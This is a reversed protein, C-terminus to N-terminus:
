TGSPALRVEVTLRRVEQSVREAVASLATLVTVDSILGDRWAANGLALDASVQEAAGLEGALRVAGLNIAAGKLANARLSIAQVDDLRVAHRSDNVWQEVSRRLEELLQQWVVADIGLRECVDRAPEITPSQCREAAVSRVKGLVTARTYPKVIYHNIELAAAQSVTARDNLATCLIVPLQAFKPDQRVRALLELGSMKPMMVDFIALETDPQGLLATWAAAGDKVMTVHHNPESALIKSLLLRSVDDDEAVLIKM